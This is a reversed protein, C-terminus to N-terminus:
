RVVIDDVRGDVRERNADITQPLRAPPAPVVAYRAFVAPLARTAARRTSTCRCRSEEQFAELAHLRRARARRGRQKAGHLVGAFEVQRFCTAGRRATPATAPRPKPSRAGRRAPEVRVLRRDPADGHGRRARSASTTPTRGATSSSSATRACSAGTARGAHRRVARDDGAHVRPRPDLDRTRSSSSGATARSTLQVLNTPPALGHSAFWGKDLNLCVDGRDIPTVRHEPDLVLAPDVDALEPSEYPEFVNGALARALLNNDVGFLVDGEPNGATLLARTVVEGADGAKLIRLKLGSEDEFAKKVGASIAFSDHTVLVVDTPKEGSGGCGAAALTVAVVFAVLAKHCASVHDSGTARRSPRRARGHRSRSESRVREVSRSEVGARADRRPACVRAGRDDVGEAAGNVALLTVLEGPEGELEREGRLVHVRAEGVFADIQSRAYRESALLLAASLLHDLRGGESALVLIRAPSLTLALDLALELDTADKERPHREIRVGAAEAVAVAEPSASDFDGVAVTVDLGLALAHELGKDAAIVPAGLPVELAARPAPLDGGSVVVVVEESM